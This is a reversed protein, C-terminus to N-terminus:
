ILDLNRSADNNEPKLIDLLLRDSPMCLQAICTQVEGAFQKGDSDENRRISETLQLMVNALEQKTLDM